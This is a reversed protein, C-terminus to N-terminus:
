SGTSITGCGNPDDIWLVVAVARFNHAPNETLNTGKTALVNHAERTEDTNSEKCCKEGGVGVGRRVAQVQLNMTAPRAADADAGKRVNASM